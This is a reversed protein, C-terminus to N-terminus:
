PGQGTDPESAEVSAELFLFVSETPFAIAFHGFAGLFFLAFNTFVEVSRPFILKFRDDLASTDEAFGIFSLLFIIGRAIAVTAAARPISPTDPGFLTTPAKPELIMPPVDLELGATTYFFVKAGTLFRQTGM